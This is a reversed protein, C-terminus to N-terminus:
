SWESHEIFIEVIINVGGYLSWWGTKQAITTVAPKTRCRALARGEHDSVVDEVGCSRTIGTGPPEQHPPCGNEGCLQGTERFGEGEREEKIEQEGRFDGLVFNMTVIVTQQLESNNM